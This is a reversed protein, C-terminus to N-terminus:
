ATACELAAAAPPPPLSWLLWRGRERGPAAPLFSGVIRGEREWRKLLLFFRTRRVGWRAGLRQFLEETTGPLAGRLEEWREELLLRNEERKREVYEAWERGNGSRRHPRHERCYLHRTSDVPCFCIPCVRRLHRGVKVWRAPSSDSGFVTGAPFFRSSYDSRPLIVPVPSGPPAPGLGRLPEASM